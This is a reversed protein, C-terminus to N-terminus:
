PETYYNLFGERNIKVFYSTLAQQQSVGSPSTGIDIFDYTTKLDDIVYYFGANVIPNITGTAADIRTQTLEDLYVADKYYGYPYNSLPLISLPDTQFGSTTTSSPNLDSLEFIQDKAQIKYAFMKRITLLRLRPPIFSTFVSYSVSQNSSSEIYVSLLDENNLDDVVQNFDSDTAINSDIIHFIYDDATETDEILQVPDIGFRLGTLPGFAHWNDVSTKLDLQLIDYILKCWILNFRKPPQRILSMDLGYQTEFNGSATYDLNNFGYFYQVRSVFYAPFGTPVFVDDLFCCLSGMQNEGGLIDLRSAIDQNPLFWGSVTDQIFKLAQDMRIRGELDLVPPITTLQLFKSKKIWYDRDNVALYLDRVIDETRSNRMTATSTWDIGSTTWGSPM